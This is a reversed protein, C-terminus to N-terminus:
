AALGEPPQREQRSPLFVTGKGFRHIAENRVWAPARHYFRVYTFGCDGREISAVWDSFEEKSSM